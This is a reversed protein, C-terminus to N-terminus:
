TSKSANAYHSIWDRIWVARKRDNDIVVLEMRPNHSLNATSILGISYTQNIISIAKAHCEAVGINDAVQSILQYAGANNSAVRSNFLCTLHQILGNDKLRKLARAPDETIGWSCIAVQAPGTTKLLAELLQHISLKGESLYWISANDFAARAVDEAKGAGIFTNPQSDAVIFPNGFSQKNGLSDAISKFPLLAM